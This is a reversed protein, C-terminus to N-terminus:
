GMESRAVDLVRLQVRENGQWYDVTLCGAAHIAQGRNEMLVKGLQQGAARFAIGNVVAGDGARLRLRV